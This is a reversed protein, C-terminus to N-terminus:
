AALCGTNALASKLLVNTEYSKLAMRATPGYIGEGIRLEPFLTLVEERTEEEFAALGVHAPHFSETPLGNSTIVEHQDFLLHFYRFGFSAGLTGIGAKGVMNKAAVLVESQGFLLQSQANRLLVRHNPSVYLDSIPYGPAISNAPIMVPRYDRLPAKDADVKRSGVWRLPQIGNDRTVIKDGAVLTEIQRYGSVTLIM